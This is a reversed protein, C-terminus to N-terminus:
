KIQELGCGCHSKQAIHPPFQTHLHTSVYSGNRSMITGYAGGQGIYELILLQGLVTPYGPVNQDSHRVVQLM